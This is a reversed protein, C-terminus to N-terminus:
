VYKEVQEVPDSLVVRFFVDIGKDVLHRLSEKEEENASINKYLLQRGAKAGMGGVNISDIKLGADTLIDLTLPSKVLIMIREDESEGNFYKIGDDLSFVKLEVAAPVGSKMVMQMFTDKAVDDDVIVVKNAKSFQLLQTLVQGHILRDDIRTWVINKM